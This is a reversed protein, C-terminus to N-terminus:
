TLGYMVGEKGAQQRGPAATGATRSTFFLLNTGRFGDGIGQRGIGTREANGSKHGLSYYGTCERKRVNSRQLSSAM